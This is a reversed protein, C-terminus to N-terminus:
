PQPKNRSYKPNKANSVSFWKDLNRVLANSKRRIPQQRFHGALEFFAKEKAKKAEIGEELLEILM